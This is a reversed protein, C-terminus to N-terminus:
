VAVAVVKEKGVMGELEQLPDRSLWADAHSAIAYESKLGLTGPEQMWDLWMKCAVMPAENRAKADAILTDLKALNEPTEAAELEPYQAKILPAAFRFARPLVHTFLNDGTMHNLIEYVGGMDCLLRGTTASLVIGLGFTSCSPAALTAESKAEAVTKSKDSYTKLNVNEPKRGAM